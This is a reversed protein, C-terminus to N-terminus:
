LHGLRAALVVPTIAAEIQEARVVESKEEGQGAAFPLDAAEAVATQAVDQRLVGTRLERAQEFAQVDMAEDLLHPVSVLVVERVGALLGDQGGQLQALEDDNGRQSPQEWGGGSSIRM